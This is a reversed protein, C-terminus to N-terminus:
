LNRQQMKATLVDITYSTLTGGVINPCTDMYESVDSFHNDHINEKNQYIHIHYKVLVYLMYYIEFIDYVSNIM